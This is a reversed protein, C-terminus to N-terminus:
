RLEDFQRLDTSSGIIKIEMAHRTKFCDGDGEQDVEGSAQTQKQQEDQEDFPMLENNPEALIPEDQHSENETTTCESTDPQTKRWVTIRDTSPIVM